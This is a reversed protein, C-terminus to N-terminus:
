GGAALGGRPLLLVLWGMLAVPRTKGRWGVVIAAWHSGRQGGARWPTHPSCFEGGPSTLPFMGAVLEETGRPWAGM